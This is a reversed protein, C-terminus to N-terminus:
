TVMRKVYKDVLERHKVQEQKTMGFIDTNYTKEVWNSKKENVPNNFGSAYVNPRGKSAVGIKFDEKMQGDFMLQINRVNTKGAKRRRRQYGKSYIGLKNGNIDRSGSQRFIREEIVAHISNAIKRWAADNTELQKINNILKDIGDM